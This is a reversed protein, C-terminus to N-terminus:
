SKKVVKMYLEWKDMPIALAIAYRVLHAVDSVEMKESRM